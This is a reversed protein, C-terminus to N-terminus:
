EGGKPPGLYFATQRYHELGTQILVKLMAAVPAGILIGLLGLLQGGAIIAMIYLVPHLGVAEGVVKPTIFYGECFQVLSIWAIVYVPHWIDWFKVVALLTAFIAAIMTGLYPIFFLLGGTVGVPIALDIGIMLFGISYLVALILSVVVQGRIFGSLVEDFKRVKEIISDRMHPPILEIASEKIKRSSLILYFSLIPVLAILLFTSILNVTSQVAISFIQTLRNAMAPINEQAKSKLFQSFSPWDYAINKDVRQAVEYFYDVLRKIYEPAQQSFYIIQGAAMPAVFLVALTLILGLCIFVILTARWRPAGRNEIADVAPELIYALLLASFVTLTLSRFTTFLLYIFGIILIVVLFKQAARKGIHL